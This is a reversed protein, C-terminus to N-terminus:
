SIEQKALFASSVLLTLVDMYHRWRLSRPKLVVIAVKESM